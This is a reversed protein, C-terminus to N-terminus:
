VKLINVIMEFFHPNSEVLRFQPLMDIDYNLILESIFYEQLFNLKKLSDWQSKCKKFLLVNPGSIHSVKSIKFM